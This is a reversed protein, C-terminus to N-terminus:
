FFPTLSFLLFAPLTRKKGGEKKARKKKKKNRHEGGSEVKSCKPASTIHTFTHTFTASFLSGFSFSSCELCFSYYFFLAFPPFRTDLPSHPDGGGSGGGGGARRGVDVEAGGRREWGERKKWWPALLGARESVMFCTGTTPNSPSRLHPSPPLTTTTYKKQPIKKNRKATECEREDGGEGEVGGWFFFLLPQKGDRVSAVVRFNEGCREQVAGWGLGVWVGLRITFSWGRGGETMGSGVVGRLFLTAGFHNCHPSVQPRSRYHGQQAIRRLVLHTAGCGGQRRAGGWELTGKRPIACVRKVFVIDVCLCVCACWSVHWSYGFM